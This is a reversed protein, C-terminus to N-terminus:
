DALGSRERVYSYSQNKVIETHDDRSERRACKRVPSQCRARVPRRSSDKGFEQPRPVETSGFHPLSIAQRAKAEYRCAILRGWKPEHLNGIARRSARSVRKVM